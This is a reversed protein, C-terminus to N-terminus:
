IIYICNAKFSNKQLYINKTINNDKITILNNYIIKLFCENEGNNSIGCNIGTAKSIFYHYKEMQKIVNNIRIVKKNLLNIAIYIDNDKNQYLNLERSADKLEQYTNDSEKILRLSYLFKASYNLIIYQDFTINNKNAFVNKNLYLLNFIEHTEQNAVIDIIKIHIYNSFLIFVILNKITENKLTKLILEIIYFSISAYNQTIINNLLFSISIYFFSNILLYNIKPINISLIDQIFLIDDKLIEEKEELIKFDIDKKESCFYKIQEKINECFLLFLTITPINCIYEILSDYNLKLLSLFINRSTNKIMVDKEYTFYFIIEDLLQFKYHKSNFFLAFTDINLKNVLSKLFNIYFSLYDADYEDNNYSLNNVLQNM